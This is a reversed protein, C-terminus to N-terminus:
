MPKAGAPRRRGPRVTSPWAVRASRYIMATGAPRALLDSIAPYTSCTPGSGPVSRYAYVVSADIASRGRCWRVPAWTAVHFHARRRSDSLGRCGGGSVKIFTGDLPVADCTRGTAPEPRTPAVAALISQRSNAHVRGRPAVLQGRLPAGGSSRTSRISYPRGHVPLDSNAPYLPLALLQTHSVLKVPKIPGSPLGPRSRLLRLGAPWGTSPMRDHADSSSTATSWASWQHHGPGAQVADTFETTNFLGHAGAVTGM